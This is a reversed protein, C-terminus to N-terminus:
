LTTFIGELLKTVDALTRDAEQVYSSEHQGSARRLLVRARELLRMAAKTKATLTVEGM